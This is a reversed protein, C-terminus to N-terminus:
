PTPTHRAGALDPILCFPACIRAVATVPAGPRRDFTFPLRNLLEPWPACPAATELPHAMATMTKKKKLSGSTLELRKGPGPGLPTEDRKPATELPYNLQPPRVLPSQCIQTLSDFRSLRQTEPLVPGVPQIALEWKPGGPRSLLTQKM